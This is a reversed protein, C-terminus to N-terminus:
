REVDECSEPGEPYHGLHNLVRGRKRHVELQLNPCLAMSMNELITFGALTDSIEDRLPRPTAHFRYVALLRGFRSPEGLNSSPLILTGGDRGRDLFPQLLEIPTEFPLWPALSYSGGAYHRYSWDLLHDLSDLRDDISEAGNM